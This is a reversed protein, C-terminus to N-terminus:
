PRPGKTEQGAHIRDHCEKCAALTKRRMSVMKLKWNPAPQGARVNLDSIRRVHHVEVRDTSGCCECTDALLRQEIETRNSNIVTNKPDIDELTAFPKRKLPPHGFSALLAPKDDRPIIVEVVRVPEMRSRYTNAMKLVTSKHKRALTKLLSVRMTWHLRDLWWVNDAMLYYQVIGRYELGYQAVISFDSNDILYVRHTPKGLKKYRDCYGKLKDRPIRLSIYGNTEPRQASLKTKIEYGLFRAPENVAHSILTKEQSVELKLEDRLFTTIRAKITEAEEKTGTLGLLFDDAYRIYRLRRFKPDHHDVSPTTRLVERKEAAEAAKGADELKRMQKYIKIYEDPTGKRKGKTFESILTGEVFKDFRDLYINALLPSVIGGQPTGSLTKNYRWDELYGAKLLGEILALFRGDHIRESLISLLVTHDINDFCGKIDGEIFWKTGTWVSQVEALATHCGREPRFGHSRPSFQPEFYAELISRIVEQLLKDTWTPIGLPRQKGNAKPIMVRRVPTWRYREHRILDIIADIKALSMGDVTEATVGRTMAGDNHYIRGYARLYLDRNFLLRYVRELHLGKQGRENIVALINDANRMERVEM